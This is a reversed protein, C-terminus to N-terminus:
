EADHGDRLRARRQSAAGISCGHRSCFQELTMDMLDAARASWWDDWSWRIELERRLRKIPTRGIPLDVDRLRTQLLYQALEVTLIVAVGRGGQGRPEDAPWGIMLEFGHATERRERVDWAVGIWDTAHGVIKARRAM